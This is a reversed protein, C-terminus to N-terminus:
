DRQQAHMREEVIKTSSPPLLDRKSFLDELWGLEVALELFVEECTGQAFFDRMDGDDNSRVDNYVIGLSQGVPEQNVVVRITFDPCQDVLSNAPSVVLSTGAVILLDMTPLDKQACKFFQSPLNRGFLVTTPKVLPKQCHDCLIHTSKAPSNSDINYIDKISTEVRRCFEDFEMSHGCGECAAQSLSGHVSVIKESPINKCQYELGDINQTYIRTLKSKNYGNDESRTKTELLELIRHAITAKWKQKQTGLIFPRRVEMYPFQNQQFMDWTVVYMPEQKMLDRQSLTATILDPQLTDYMGGPSRFDPIGSAVSVGTAAFVAVVFSVSKSYDHSVSSLLGNAQEMQYTYTLLAKIIRVLV